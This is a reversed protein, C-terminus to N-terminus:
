LSLDLEDDTRRDPMLEMEDGHPYMNVEVAIESGRRERCTSLERYVRRDCFPCKILLQAM